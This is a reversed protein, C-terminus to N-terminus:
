KETEKKYIEILKEVVYEKVAKFTISKEQVVFEYYDDVPNESLAYEEVSDCYTLSFWFEKAQEESIDKERRRELIHKKLEIKTLEWNDTYQDDHPVLKRTLYDSSCWALFEKLTGDSFYFRNSYTGYDSALTWLKEDLYATVVWHGNKDFIEHRELM